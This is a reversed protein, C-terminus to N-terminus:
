RAFMDVVSATPSSPKADVLYAVQCNWSEVWVWINKIKSKKSTRLTVSGSKKIKEPKGLKNCRPTQHNTLASPFYDGSLMFFIVWIVRVKEKRQKELRCRISINTKRKKKGERKERLLIANTKTIFSSYTSWRRLISKYTLGSITYPNKARGCKVPVM